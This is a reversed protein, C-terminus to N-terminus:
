SFSEIRGGKPHPHDRPMPDVILTMYVWEDIPDVPLHRHVTLLADGIVHKTHSTLSIWAFCDPYEAACAVSYPNASEMMGPPVPVPILKVAYVRDSAKMASLRDPFLMIRENARLSLTEMEINSTEEM